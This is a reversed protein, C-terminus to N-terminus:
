DEHTRERWARRLEIFLGATTLEVGREKGRAKFWELIEGRHRWCGWWGWTNMRQRMVECGCNPGADYGLRSLVTKVVDGPGPALPTRPWTRAIGDGYKREPCYNARAHEIIDRGDITCACPGNCGKARRPCTQCTAINQQTETLM